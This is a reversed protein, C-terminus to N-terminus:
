RILLAAGRVQHEYAGLDVRNWNIRRNGDLDLAGSMWDLNAGANVCPSSARLRYDRATWDVFGPAATINNTGEVHCDTFRTACTHSVQNTYITSGSFQHTPGNYYVISNTMVYITSASNARIHM